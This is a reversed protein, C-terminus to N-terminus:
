KKKGAKHKQSRDAIDFMLPFERDAKKERHAVLKNGRVEVSRKGASTPKDSPRNAQAGNAVFLSALLLFVFALFCALTFSRM